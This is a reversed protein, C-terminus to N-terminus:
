EGELTWKKRNEIELKDKKYQLMSCWKNHVIEYCVGYIMNVWNNFGMEVDMNDTLLKGVDRMFHINLSSNAFTNLLLEKIPSLTQSLEAQFKNIYKTDDECYKKFTSNNSYLEHFGFKLLMKRLTDDVAYSSIVALTFNNQTAYDKQVRVYMNKIHDRQDTRVITNFCWNVLREYMPYMLFGNHGSNIIFKSVENQRSFNNENIDSLVKFRFISIDHKFYTHSIFQLLNCLLSFESRMADSYYKYLTFTEADSKNTHKSTDGIMRTANIYQNMFMDREIECYTYIYELIPIYRSLDETLDYEVGNFKNRYSNRLSDKIADYLDFLLVSLNELVMNSCIKEINKNKLCETPNAKIYRYINKFDSKVPARDKFFMYNDEFASVTQLFLSHERITIVDLKLLEAAALVMLENVCSHFEYISGMNTHTNKHFAKIYKKISRKDSSSHLINIDRFKGSRREIVPVKYIDESIIDTSYM